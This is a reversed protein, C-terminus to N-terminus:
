INLDKLIPMWCKDIKHGSILNVVSDQKNLIHIGELIRRRVGNNERELIKMNDFCFRHGTTAHHFPVGNDFNHDPQILSLDGKCSREHENRRLSLKRKTQGIYQHNPDECPISYVTNKTDWFDKPPRRKFLHSGLTPTKKYACTIGFSKELIQFMKRAHPHYPAVFSDRFDRDEKDEFTEDFQETNQNMGHQQQKQQIIRLVAEKPFGNNCFVGLLHDLEEQLLEKTSCYHLARLTLSHIAATKEHWAQASTFHLYRDSASPKRYVTRQVENGVRILHIDFINFTGGQEVEKTWKIPSYLSNLFEFFDELRTLPDTWNMFTDNVLRVWNFSRRWERSLQIQKEIKQELILDALLRSLPGGMPTGKCQRFFGLECEFYPSGILLRVLSSVEARTLDTKKAWDKDEDMKIELLELADNMIISPYLEVVDFSVFFGGDFRGTKLIEILQSHSALHHKTQGAYSQFLKHLSKALTHGPSQSADSIERLPMNPKHLKILGHNWPAPADSTKFRGLESRRVLFTEKDKVKSESNMLKTVLDNLQKEHQIAPDATISINNGIREELKALYM